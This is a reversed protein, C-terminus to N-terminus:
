RGICQKKTRLLDAASRIGTDDRVLFAADSSIAGIWGFNTTDFRFRKDGSDVAWQAVLTAFTGVTLGDPAVKKYLHNAASTGGAGPKTVVIVEPNGPIHRGLFPQFMRFLDATTSGGGYNVLLTVTKGAFSVEKASAVTATGLGSLSGLALALAAYAFSRFRIRPFM